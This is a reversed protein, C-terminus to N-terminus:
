CMIKKMTKAFIWSLLRVTDVLTAVDEAVARATTHPPAAPCAPRTGGAARTAAAANGVARAM